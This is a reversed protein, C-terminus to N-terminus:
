GRAALTAQPVGAPPAYFAWGGLVAVAAGAGILMSSRRELFGVGLYITAIAYPLEALALAGLYKWFSYGMLGLLYGPM